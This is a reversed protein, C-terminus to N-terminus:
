CHFNGNLSLPHYCLQRHEAERFLGITDLSSEFYDLVHIFPASASEIENVLEFKFYECNIIIGLEMEVSGLNEMRLTVQVFLLALM